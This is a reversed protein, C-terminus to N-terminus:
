REGGTSTASLATRAIVAARTAAAWAHQSSTTAIRPPEIFMTLAAHCERLAERLRNIEDLMDPAADRIREVRDLADMYQQKSM